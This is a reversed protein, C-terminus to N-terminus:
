KMIRFYERSLKQCIKQSKAGGLGKPDEGVADAAVGGEDGGVDDDHDRADDGGIACIDVAEGGYPEDHSERVGRVKAGYVEQTLAKQPSYPFDHSQCTKHNNM